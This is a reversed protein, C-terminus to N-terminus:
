HGHNEGGPTLTNEDLQRFPGRVGDVTHTQDQVCNLQIVPANSPFTTNASAQDVFNAMGLAALTRGRKSVITSVTIHTMM